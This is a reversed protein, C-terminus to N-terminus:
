APLLGVYRLLDPSGSAYQDLFTTVRSKLQEWDHGESHMLLVEQKLKRWLKEIPNLWPAYTPMAVLTINERQAAAVQRPHFHVQHWNDQIVYITQAQPYSARILVLLDVLVAVTIHSRLRYLVQGSVANIVAVTRGCTNYRCPLDVKPQIRGAEAYVPAVEAWRHFSFEDLLLTVVKPDDRAAQICRQIEAAKLAYDPDPSHMHQQGRKYHLKLANLLRWIGSLSYDALWGVSKRILALSWRSANSQSADPAAQLQHRLAQEQEPPFVGHAARSRCSSM